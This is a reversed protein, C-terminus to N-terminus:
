EPKRAIVAGNAGGAEFRLTRTYGFGAAELWAGYEGAAYNRGGETEILM